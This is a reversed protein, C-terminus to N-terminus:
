RFRSTSRTHFPAAFADVAALTAGLQDAANFVPIILSLAPGDTRSALM